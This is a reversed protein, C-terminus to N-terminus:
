VRRILLTMLVDNFYTASVFYPTIVGFIVTRFTCSLLLLGLVLM